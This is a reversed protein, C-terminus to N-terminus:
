PTITGNTIYKIQVSKTTDTAGPIGSILITYAKAEELAISRSAIISDGNSVKIDINGAKIKGFGTVKGFSANSDFTSGEGSSIVIKPSIASDPIANIYRVFAKGTSPALNNLSDNVLITHYSGKRGVTFLSYYMSDAFNGTATVLNTGTNADVVTIDRLGIYVPLYNGTYGNYGIPTNTLYNGSLRVGIAEKDPALNFAMLGAAPTRTYPTNDKKCASFVVAVVLLGMVYGSIKKM